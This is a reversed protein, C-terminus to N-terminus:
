LPPSEAVTHSPECLCWLIEDGNNTRKAAGHDQTVGECPAPTATRSRAVTCHVADEPTRESALMGLLFSTPRQVAPGGGARRGHATRGCKGANIESVAYVYSRVCVAVIAPPVGIVSMSAPAMPRKM